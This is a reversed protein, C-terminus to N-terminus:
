MKSGFCSSSTHHDKKNENPGTTKKRLYLTPNNNFFGEPQLNFSARVVPMVPWEELRPVHLVGLTYWLVLSTDVISRNTQTWVPLGDSTFNPKNPYDGSPYKEQNKFPTIWLHKNIFGARRRLASSANAYTFANEGPVLKYAVPDGVSNKHKKNV